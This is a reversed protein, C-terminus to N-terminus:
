HATDRWIRRYSFWTLIAFGLLYILVVLGTRKREVQHPDAAWALFASVDQAMQDITPQTGDDYTVANEVLPPAMAIFGGPPVENHDGEWFPTMDGSMWPNYHQGPNIRLGEPADRYGTLLSYIYAAGGHRAKVIVSLDPPAAGGNAFAAATANPFPRRFTDAPTAPRMIAEGTETDIDAVEIQGAIAAVYPNRAADPYESSYFPGGQQGLNRYAMLNMSHCAACVQEYVRYGRQLQGQDFTGFPGTFSFNVHRPHEAGGAATAASAGMLAAAAFLGAAIRKSLTSIM